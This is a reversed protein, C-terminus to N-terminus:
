KKEKKSFDIKEIKINLKDFKDLTNKNDSIIKITDFNTSLIIKNIISLNIIRDIFDYRDNRLNNVEFEILPNNKNKFIINSLKSLLKKYVDRKRSSFKKFINTRM